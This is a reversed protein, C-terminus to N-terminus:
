GHKLETRTQKPTVAALKRALDEVAAWDRSLDVRGSYAARVAIHIALFTEMVDWESHKTDWSARMMMHDLAGLMAYFVLEDDFLVSSGAPDRAANLETEVDSLMQTDTERLLNRLESEPHVAEVRALARLDPSLAQIQHTAYVRWAMRAASDDTEEVHPAIQDYMWKFYVNYCAVFLHRKSPFHSYLARTTVGVGECIDLIRTREYGWKAFYRAAVELIQKRTDESQKAVLDVGHEAAAEM